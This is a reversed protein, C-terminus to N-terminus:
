ASLALDAVATLTAGVASVDSYSAHGAQSNLRTPIIKASALQACRSGLLTGLFKAALNCGKTTMRKPGIWWKELNKAVM